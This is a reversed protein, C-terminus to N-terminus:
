TSKYNISNRYASLISEITQVGEAVSIIELSVCMEVNKIEVITNLLAHEM